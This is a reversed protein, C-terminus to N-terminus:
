LNSKKAEYETELSMLFKIYKIESINAMSLIHGSIANKLEVLKREAVKKLNQVVKSHRMPHDRYGVVSFRIPLKPNKDRTTIIIQTITKKCEEVWRSMSGTADVLFCVELSEAGDAGVGRHEKDCDFEHITRTNEFSHWARLKCFM